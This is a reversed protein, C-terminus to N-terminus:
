IKDRLSPDKGKLFDIAEELTGVEHRNIGDKIALVNMATRFKPAPSGISVVWGILPHQTISRLIQDYESSDRLRGLVDELGTNGAEPEMDRYDILIHVKPPQGQANMLELIDRNRALVPEQGAVGPAYIIHRPLYWHAKEM